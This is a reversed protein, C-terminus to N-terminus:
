PTASIESCIADLAETEDLGDAIVIIEAGAPAALALLQIPDALSARRGAHRVWISASFGSATHTLQHAMQAHLGQPDNVTVTRQQM